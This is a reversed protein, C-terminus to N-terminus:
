SFCIGRWDIRRILNIFRSGISSKAINKKIKGFEINFFRSSSAAIFNNFLGFFFMLNTLVLYVGYPYEGIESLIIKILFLSIILNIIKSLSLYITNKIIM